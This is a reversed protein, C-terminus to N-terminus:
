EDVCETWASEAGLTTLIGGTFTLSRTKKYAMGTVHKMDTVVTFTGTAGDDGNVDFGTNARVVGTSTFNANVIAPNDTTIRLTDGDMYLKLSDAGSADRVFLTDALGLVVNGGADIVISTGIKIKGTTAQMYLTDNDAMWVRGTDNGTNIWAIPRTGTMELTDSYEWQGSITEDESLDAFEAESKSDLLDANLNACLANSAVIIPATASTDAELVATTIRKPGADWNATLAVSGDKRLFLAGTDAIVTRVWYISPLTSDADTNIHFASVGFIVKGDTAVQIAGNPGIRFPNPTNSWILTSDGTELFFTTDASAAGYTLFFTDRTGLGLALAFRGAIERIANVTLTEPIEARLVDLSDSIEGGTTLNWHYGWRGVDFGSATVPVLSAVLLGLLLLKKSM